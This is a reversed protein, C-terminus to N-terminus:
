FIEGKDGRYDLAMGVFCSKEVMNVDVQILQNMKTRTLGLVFLM